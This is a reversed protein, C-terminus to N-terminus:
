DTTNNDQKDTKTTQDKVRHNRSKEEIAAYNAYEGSYNGDCHIAM